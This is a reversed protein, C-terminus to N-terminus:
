LGKWDSSPFRVQDPLKTAGGNLEYQMFVTDVWRGLKFGSGEISGCHKFGLSEHLAVSGKNGQGDGIVAVMQHFGLKGCEELLRLLLAKGVGKGKAEPAVYVSDEILWRYGPRTRFPSAYAYGLAVGGEEAVLWPFGHGTFHLFRRELEAADPPELEYSGTGYLVAHEYITLMDAIDQLTASRINM